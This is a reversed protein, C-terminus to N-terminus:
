TTLKNWVDFWWYTRQPRKIIQERNIKLTYGYDLLDYDPSLKKLFGGSFDTYNDFVEYKPTKIVMFAHNPDRETRPYIGNTPEPWAFGGVMIMDHKLAKPYEKEYAKEYNVYFRQKFGEAIEKMKDTIKSPDYYEDFAFVQPFLPKPILGNKRVADLPAKFSNGSRTTGSLLAIWRDSFTVGDNVYGNERLWKENEFSLKKQKILM